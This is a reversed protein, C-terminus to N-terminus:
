MEIRGELARSLTSEDAYELDSGVPIGRAIRSVKIGMPKLIRVLYLATAEGETNPNTAVIVEKVDADLRSLLEKIRLDDPGVGDLPSLVGGLVHYLGHYEGTKEIALIDNPEEVVCILGRNRKESTCIYCPDQETINHCVSCYRVRHKLEEIVRSLALVQETPAKLLYFVHRQASKRGVGPLKSLEQIAREVTESSYKM